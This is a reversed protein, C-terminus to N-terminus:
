AIGEAALQAARYVEALPVDQERAVQACDDYEPAAITRGDLLKLKVRVPGFPTLVTEQRRGAILRQSRRLRVGLTTTERLILEALASVQEPRGIVGLLTGPRNKKMQIPTFYVDLAGAEFLREMAYGLLEPTADDLNAEIVVVEDQRLGANGSDGESVALRSVPTPLRVEERGEREFPAMPTPPVMTPTIPLSSTMPAPHAAEAREPASLPMRPPGPAWPEGLWVRVANPWPLQRTGYGYGVRHVRMSPQEFTALEALIAAGTPTVLEGLVPAPRTPAGIRALVELTAPAPAPLLGHRARVTGGPLPLSSAHIRTVGLAHLGLLGGVIDVISDVGGVEHFHVSDVTSGHIKAEAEALRRFVAEASTRVWPPLDSRDLLAVIEALRREPQVAEDVLVDLKTGTIGYSQKTQVNLRYGGLDLKALGAELAALPLGADLLAGLLMDGSIGSFCDVYILPMPVDAPPRPTGTALEASPQRPEAHHQPDPHDHPHGHHDEGGPQSM